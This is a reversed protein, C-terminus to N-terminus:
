FVSRTKVHFMKLVIEFLCNRCRPGGVLRGCIQPFSGFLFGSVSIESVAVGPCFVGLCCVHFLFCELWGREVFSCGCLIVCVCLSLCVVSWGFPFHASACWSAVHAVCVSLSFLCAHVFCVVGCFCLCLSVFVSSVRLSLSLSFFFIFISFCSSFLSVPVHLYFLHCFCSVLLSVVSHFCRCFFFLVIILWIMSLVCVCVFFSVCLCSLHYFLILVFCGPCVVGGALSLVVIHSLRTEVKCFQFSKEEWFCCCANKLRYINRWEKLM